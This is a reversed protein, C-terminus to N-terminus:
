SSKRILKILFISVVVAIGIFTASGAEVMRLLSFAAGTNWLHVWNFFPTVSVYQWCALSQQVLWKVAQDSAALLGIHVIPCVALTKGIILM